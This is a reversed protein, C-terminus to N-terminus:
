ITPGLFYLLNRHIRRLSCSLVDHERPLRAVATTFKNFFAAGVGRGIGQADPSIRADPSKGPRAPRPRKRGRRTDASAKKGRVRRRKM